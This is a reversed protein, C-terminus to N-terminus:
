RRSAIGSMNLAWAPPIHSGTALAAEVFSKVAEPDCDRSRQWFATRSEDQAHTWERSKQRDYEQGILSLIVDEATAEGGTEKMLKKLMKQDASGLELRVVSKIKSM